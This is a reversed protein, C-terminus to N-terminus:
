EQQEQECFELWEANDGERFSNEQLDYEGTQLFSPVMRRVVSFTALEVTHTQSNLGQSCLIEEILLDQRRQMGDRVEMRQNLRTQVERGEREKESLKKKLEDIM